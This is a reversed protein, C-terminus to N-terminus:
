AYGLAALLGLLGGVAIAKRSVRRTPQQQELTDSM